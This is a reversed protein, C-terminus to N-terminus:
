HTAEYRAMLGHYIYNEWMRVIRDKGYSHSSYTQILLQGDMCTVATGYQDAIHAYTGWLLTADSGPALRLLDGLEFPWFGTPNRLSIGDNPSHLIPASGDLPWLNIYTYFEGQIITRAESASIILDWGEGAPGGSLLQDKFQGAADRVDVFRYGLNDLAEKVYRTTSFDGAMDEYLLINADAVWEEFTEVAPPPDTPPPPPETPAPPETASAIQTLQQAAMTAQAAAEIQASLDETPSLAQQTLEAAQEAVQTAQIGAAIQTEQFGAASETNKVAIAVETMQEEFSKEPPPAATTQSNPLNCASVLLLILLIIALTFRNVRMKEEL